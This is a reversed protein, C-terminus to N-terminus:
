IIYEIEPVEAWAVATDVLEGDWTYYVGEDIYFNGQIMRKKNNYVDLFLIIIDRESNPKETSFKM